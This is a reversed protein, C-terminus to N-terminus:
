GTQRALAAAAMTGLPPSTLIQCDLDGLMSAADAMSAQALIIVPPVPSLACLRAVITDIYAQHDGSKFHPWAEAIHVMKLTVDRDAAEAMREVLERTPTLTSQAAAAITIEDSLGVAREAMAQDIRMVPLSGSQTIRDVAPGITSCTCLTAVGDAALQRLATETEVAIKDTLRGAAMAQDLLDARVTHDLVIDPALESFLRDFVPVHQDGTHFLHLRHSMTKAKGELM